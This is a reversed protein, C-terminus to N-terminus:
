AREVLSRRLESFIATSIGTLLFNGALKNLVSIRGIYLTKGGFFSESSFVQLYVVPLLETRLTKARFFGWWATPSYVNFALARCFHGCFHATRTMKRRTKSKESHVADTSTIRKLVAESGSQLSLHFQRMLGPLEACARAFDESTKEMGDPLSNLGFYVARTKQFIADSSLTGQMEAYMELYCRYHNLMELVEFIEWTMPVDHIIGKDTYEVAVYEMLSNGAHIRAIDEEAIDRIPRSRLLKDGPLCYVETYQTGEAIVAEWVDMANDSGWLIPSVAEEVGGCLFDRIHNRIQVGLQRENDIKLVNFSSSDVRIVLKTM